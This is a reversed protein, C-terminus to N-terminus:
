SRAAEVGALFGAVCPGIVELDYGGEQLVITPTGLAGVLRGAPEYMAPTVGLDGIPDTGVTDVGLSVVLVDSDFAAVDQLARELTALYAADTCGADLLHNHTCGAGRGSGAEDPWGTFYPFARDPDAHLSVFLVDGREYFLQQTGNGHHYDVDLVCVRTAGADLAAQAAIGANNFFCYGGFAARPAHHGPPRCLGYAVPAGALVADLSTLAVDVAARAAGYTGEVMPTATDFSYYGIRGLATRPPRGAGLGERRAPNPYSDPIAGLAAGGAELWDHWAVSLYAVLAGDHVREIPGLGHDTPGSFTHGGRAELAANIRAVREPNEYIGVEEGHLLETAPDHALHADSRVVLM